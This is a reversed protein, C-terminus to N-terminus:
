YIRSHGFTRVDRIKKQRWLKRLERQYDNDASFAFTPMDIHPATSHKYGYQGIWHEWEYVRAIGTGLPRM